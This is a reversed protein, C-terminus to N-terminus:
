LSVCDLHVLYLIIDKSLLKVCYFSVASGIMAPRLEVSSAVLISFPRNPEVILALITYTSWLPMSCIDRVLDLYLSVLM